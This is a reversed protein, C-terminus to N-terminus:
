EINVEPKIDEAQNNASSSDNNRVKHKSRHKFIEESEKSTFSCIQGTHREIELCKYLVEQDPHAEKWHSLNGAHDAFEQSCFSCTKLALPVFRKRGRCFFFYISNHITKSQIEVLHRFLNQVPFFETLRAFTQKYNM